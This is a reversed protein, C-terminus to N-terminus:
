SGLKSVEDLITSESLIQPLVIPPRGPAYFVYLPVGDQGLTHLFSSIAPDQRTWDGKLYAINSRAFAQRVAPPSLAIKENVLCSLCWAATM